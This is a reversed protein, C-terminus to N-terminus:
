DENESYGASPPGAIARKKDEKQISELDEQCELCRVSMPNALLRAEPIDEECSICIGFQDKNMRSEAAQIQLLRNNKQEKQNKLRGMEAINNAKDIEDLDEAQELVELDKNLQELSGFIEQKTQAMKDACKKM